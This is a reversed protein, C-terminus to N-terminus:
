SQPFSSCLLSCLLYCLDKIFVQELAESQPSPQGKLLVIVRLVCGLCRLIPKPVHRQINKLAGALARVQVLDFMEPFVQFYSHM